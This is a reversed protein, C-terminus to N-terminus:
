AQIDLTYELEKSRFQSTTPSSQISMIKVSCLLLYSNVLGFDVYSTDVLSRAMAVNRVSGATALIGTDEYFQGDHM